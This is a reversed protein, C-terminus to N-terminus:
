SLEGRRHPPWEVVPRADPDDLDERLLRRAPTHNSKRVALAIATVFDDHLGETRAEFRENGAATVKVAYGLLEKQAQPAHELTSAIRLRGEHLLRALHSVLDVKPVGSESQQGATITVPKPRRDWEGAMYLDRVISRVGAGLGTGDYRLLVVSGMRDHVERLLGATERLVDGPDTGVPWRTLHRVFWHDETATYPGYLRHERLGIPVEVREAIALASYDRGGAALDLGGTLCHTARLEIM